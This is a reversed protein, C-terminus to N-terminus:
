NRPVMGARDNEDKDRADRMEREYGIFWTVIQLLQVKYHRYIYGLVGHM